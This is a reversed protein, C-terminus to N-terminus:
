GDTAVKGKLAVTRTDVSVDSTLGTGQILDNIPLYSVGNILSVNALVPRENLYVVQDEADWRIPLKWYDAWARLPCLSRGGVVPMAAVKQGNITLTYTPPETVPRPLLDAWRVFKVKAPNIRRTKAYVGDGESSLANNTNGEITDFTADHVATVLGIHSAWQRGGEWVLTLFADGVQPRDHLIGAAEAWSYIAPCWATRLLPPEIKRVAAEESICWYVFAACWPAGPAHGVSRLFTNVMKGRNAGWEERVGEQSTARALTGTVFANTTM